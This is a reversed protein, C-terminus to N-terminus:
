HEILHASRSWSPSGKRLPVPREHKEGLQNVTSEYADVLQQLALRAQRGGSAQRTAGSVCMRVSASAQPQCKTCCLSCTDTPKLKENVVSDTM